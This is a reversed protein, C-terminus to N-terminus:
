SVFLGIRHPPQNQSKVIPAIKPCISKPRTDFQSWLTSLSDSINYIPIPPLSNYLISMTITTTMGCILSFFHRSPNTPVQVLVWKIIPRWRLFSINHVVGKDGIGVGILGKPDGSKRVKLAVVNRVLLFRRSERRMREGVHGKGSLYWNFSVFGRDLELVGGRDSVVKDKFLISWCSSFFRIPEILLKDRRWLAQYRVGHHVTIYWTFQDFGSWQFGTGWQWWDDGTMVHCCRSRCVVGVRCRRDSDCMGLM